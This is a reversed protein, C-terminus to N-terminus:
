SSKYSTLISMYPMQAETSGNQVRHYVNPAPRSKWGATLEKRSIDTQHVRIWGDFGVAFLHVGEEEGEGEGKGEGEETFNPFQFAASSVGPALLHPAILDGPTMSLWSRDAKDSVWGCPPLHGHWVESIFILHALRDLKREFVYVYLTQSNERESIKINRGSLLGAGLSVLKM